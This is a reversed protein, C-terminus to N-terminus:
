KRMNMKVSRVRPFDNIWYTVPMKKKSNQDHGGTSGRRLMGRMFFIFVMLFILLIIWIFGFGHGWGYGSDM